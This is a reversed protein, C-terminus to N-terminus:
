NPTKRTMIFVTLNVHVHLIGVVLFIIGNISSLTLPISVGRM